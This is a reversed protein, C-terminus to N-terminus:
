IDEQFQKHLAIWKKAETKTNQVGQRTPMNSDVRASVSESSMAITHLM